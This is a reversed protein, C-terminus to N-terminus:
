EITVVTKAYDLLKERMAMQMLFAKGYTEEDGYVELAKDYDADEITLGAAKFSAEYTLNLAAAKKASEKLAVEYDYGEKGTYDSLKSYPTYGMLYTYYSNYTEYM